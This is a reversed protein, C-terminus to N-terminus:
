EGEVTQSQATQTESDPAFVNVGVVVAFAIGVILAFRMLFGASTNNFM